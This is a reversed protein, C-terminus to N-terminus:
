CSCAVNAAAAMLQPFEPCDQKILPLIAAPHPPFLLACLPLVDEDAADTEMRKDVMFSIM